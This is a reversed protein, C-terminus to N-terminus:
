SEWDESLLDWQSPVWQMGHLVTDFSAQYSITGEPSLIIHLGPYWLKRRVPKGQRILNLAWEFSNM